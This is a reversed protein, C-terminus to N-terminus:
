AEILDWSLEAPPNYAPGLLAKFANGVATDVDQATGGNAAVDEGIQRVKGIDFVNIPNNPSHRLFADKSMQFQRKQEKTMRAM